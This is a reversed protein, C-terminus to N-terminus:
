GKRREALLKILELLQESRLMFAITVITFFLGTTYIIPESKGLYVSYIFAIMFTFFAFWSKYNKFDM